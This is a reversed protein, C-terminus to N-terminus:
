IVVKGNSNIITSSCPNINGDEDYDDYEIPGSSFEYHILAILNNAFDWCGITKEKEDIELTYIQIIKLIWM